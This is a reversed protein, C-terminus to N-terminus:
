MNPLNQIDVPTAFAPAIGPFAMQGQAVQGQFQDIWADLVVKHQLNRGTNAYDALDRSGAIKIMMQVALYLLNSYQSAGKPKISGYTAYPDANVVRADIIFDDYEQALIGPAQLLAM